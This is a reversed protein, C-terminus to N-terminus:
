IIAQKIMEKRHQDQSIEGPILLAKKGAEKIFRAIETAGEQENVYSIFVDAGERAFAIPVARGIGSDGGTIIATRNELKGSGKYSIEGHDAKPNRQNKFGPPEQMEQNPYPPQAHQKIPDQM